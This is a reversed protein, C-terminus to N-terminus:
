HSSDKGGIDMHLKGQWARLWWRKDKCRQFADLKKEGVLDRLFCNFEEKEETKCALDLGRLTRGSMM